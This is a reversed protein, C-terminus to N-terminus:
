LDQLEKAEIKEVVQKSNKRNKARKRWYNWKRRKYRKAGAVMNEETLRTKNQGGDATFLVKRTGRQEPM